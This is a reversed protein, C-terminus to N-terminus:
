RWGEAERRSFCRDCISHSVGGSVGHKRQFGMFKGCWACQKVFLDFHAAVSALWKFRNLIRDRNATTIKM